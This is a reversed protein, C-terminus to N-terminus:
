LSRKVGRRVISSCPFAVRPELSGVVVRVRRQLSVSMGKARNDVCLKTM